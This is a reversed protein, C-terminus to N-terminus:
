TNSDHTLHKWVLVTRYFAERNSQGSPDILSATLEVKRKSAGKSACKLDCKLPKFGERNCWTLGRFKKELYKMQLNSTLMIVSSLTQVYNKELSRSFYNKSSTLTRYHSLEKPRLSQLIEQNIEWPTYWLFFLSPEM